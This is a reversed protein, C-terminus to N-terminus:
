NDHSINKRKLENSLSREANRRRAWGHGDCVTSLFVVFRGLLGGGVLQADSSPEATSLWM